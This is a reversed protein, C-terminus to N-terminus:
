HTRPDVVSYSLIVWALGCHNKIGGLVIVIITPVVLRKEGGSIKIVSMGTSTMGNIPLGLAPATYEM